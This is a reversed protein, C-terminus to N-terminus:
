SSACYLAPINWAHCLMKPDLQHQASIQTFTRPLRAPTKAGMQAKKFFFMPLFLWNVGSFHWKVTAREHEPLPTNPTYTNGPLLASIKGARVHINRIRKLHLYFYNSPQHYKSMWSPFSSRPNLWDFLILLLHSFLQAQWDCPITDCGPSSDMVQFWSARAPYGENMLLLCWLSVM